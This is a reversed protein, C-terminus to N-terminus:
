RVFTLSKKARTIAVYCINDEEESKGVRFTKDLMFVHDWELGKAKHVTSLKVQDTRSEAFFEKIADKVGEVTDENRTFCMISQAEDTIRYANRPSRACAEECWSSISNQLQEVTRPEWNNIRWVFRNGIDKGIIHAKVGRKVLDFATSVLAFNNRSLVASQKGVIKKHLEDASSYWIHGDEAGGHAKIDPNIEQALNVIKRPCRYSVSLPLQTADMDDILEDIVGPHAGCFHYIAQKRDGVACIRGDKKLAKLTLHIRSASLDQAEDVFVRDYQKPMWGHVYPLWLMDDFSIVRHGNLTLPEKKTTELIKFVIEAFDKDSIGCSPIGFECCVAEIQPPTGALMTKSMKVAWVISERLRLTKDSSGCFKAALQMTGEDDQDISERGKLNYVEGWESRVTDLGMRHFTRAETGLPVRLTLESAVSKNFALCLSEEGKPVHHLSEVITTSKGAGPSALVVSHGDGESVHKFIKNQYDSWYEAPKREPVVQRKVRKSKRKRALSNM